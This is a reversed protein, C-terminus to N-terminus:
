AKEARWPAWRWGRWAHPVLRMFDYHTVFYAVFFAAVVDITYHAHAAVLAAGILISIMAQVLKINKNVYHMQMFFMTQVLASGTHGSFFMGRYIYKAALHAEGFSPPQTEALPTLVITQARIWFLLTVQFLLVPADKFQNRSLAYISLAVMVWGAVESVVLWDKNKPIIDFLLDDPQALTEPPYRDDMFGINLMLNLLLFVMFAMSWALRVLSLKSFMQKVYNIFNM